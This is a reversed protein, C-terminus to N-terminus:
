NDSLHQIHEVVLVDLPAKQSELKIGLQEKVAQFFTAGSPEDTPAQGPPPDPAWELAFDWTGTLGTRDIVPRDSQGMWTLGNAIFPMTIDRGGVSQLTRASPALSLFGGCLAPFKGLMEGGRPLPDTKCSNAPHPQLGPGTKGPKILTMALVPEQKTETHITFKFREALLSRMMLRMEDKTVNPKSTRAEIDYNETNVWDPLQSQLAKGEGGQIKYAFYVYTALPLDTAKFYGGTQVFVTGPGLPSNSHPAPDGTKNQKVSAVDFALKPEPTQAPLIISFSLAVPWCHKLIGSMGTVKASGAQPWAPANM